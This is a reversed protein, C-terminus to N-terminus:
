TSSGPKVKTGAKNGCCVTKHADLLCYDCKSGQKKGKLNMIEEKVGSLYGPYCSSHYCM